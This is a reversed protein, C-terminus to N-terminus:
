GCTDRERWTRRQRVLSHLLEERYTIIDIHRQLCTFLAHTVEVSFVCVDLILLFFVIVIVFSRITFMTINILILVDPLELM